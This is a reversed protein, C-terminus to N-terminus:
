RYLESIAVREMVLAKLASDGSGHITQTFALEEESIGYLAMLHARKENLVEILGDDGSGYSLFLESIEKSAGDSGNIAVLVWSRSSPNVGLKQIAEKIQRSASAYLLLETAPSRALNKGSGFSIAALRAATAIHELGAVGRGDMIQANAGLAHFRELADQFLSPKRPKLGQVLVSHFPSGPTLDITPM